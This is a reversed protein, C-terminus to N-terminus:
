AHFITFCDAELEAREHRELLGGVAAAAAAAQQV